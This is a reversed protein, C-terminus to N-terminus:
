RKTAHKMTNTCRQPHGAVWEQEIELASYM